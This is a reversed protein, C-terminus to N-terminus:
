KVKSQRHEMGDKHLMFDFHPKDRRHRNVVGMKERKIM